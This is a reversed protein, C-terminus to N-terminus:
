TANPVGSFLHTPKNTVEGTEENFTGIQWLEYDAPHLGYKNKPDKNVTEFDRIAEGVHRCTFPTEFLGLKIDKIVCIPKHM